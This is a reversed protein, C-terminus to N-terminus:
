FSFVLVTVQSSFLFYILVYTEFQFVSDLETQPVLKVFNQVSLRWLVKSRENADGIQRAASIQARDDSVTQYHRRDLKEPQRGM